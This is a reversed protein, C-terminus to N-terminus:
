IQYDIPEAGEDLARNKCAPGIEIEALGKAALSPRSDNNAFTDLFNNVHNGIDSLPETLNQNM